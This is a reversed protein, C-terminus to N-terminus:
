TFIGKALSAVIPVVGIVLYAPLFCLALPAVVRVGAARAAAQVASRHERRLDEVTSDLVYSLPAGSEQSRRIARAIPQLPGPVRAWAEDPSAGLRLAAGVAAVHESAPSSVASAVADVAQVTSAGAGVIAGVLEAVVPAQRSLALDAVREDRQGHRRTVVVIVVAVGAGILAGLPGGFVIALLVGVTAALAIIWRPSLSDLRPRTRPPTGLARRLRSVPDAPFLLGAAVGACAMALAIV